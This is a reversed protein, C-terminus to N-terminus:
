GKEVLYYLGSNVSSSKGPKLVDAEPENALRAVDAGIAIGEPGSPGDGRMLWNEAGDEAGATPVMPEDKVVLVAETENVM